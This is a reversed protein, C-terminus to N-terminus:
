QKRSIHDAVIKLQGGREIVNSTYLYQVTLDQGNTQFYVTGLFTAFVADGNGSVRLDDFEFKKITYDLGDVVTTLGSHYACDVMDSV